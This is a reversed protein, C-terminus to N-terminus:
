QQSTDGCSVPATYTWSPPLLASVQMCMSVDKAAPPSRFHFLMRRAPWAAQLAETGQISGKAEM